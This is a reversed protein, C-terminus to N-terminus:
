NLTIFTKFSYLLAFSLLYISLYISLIHLLQRHESSHILSMKKYLSLSLGLIINQKYMTFLNYLLMGFPNSMCIHNELSYQMFSGSYLNDHRPQFKRKHQCIKFYSALHTPYIWTTTNCARDMHMCLLDFNFNQDKYFAAYICM